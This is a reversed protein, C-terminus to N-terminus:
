THNIGYSIFIDVHFQLRQSTRLYSGSTSEEAPTCFVESTLRSKTDGGDPSRFEGFLFRRHGRGIVRSDTSSQLHGADLENVLVASPRAYSQPFRVGRFAILSVGLDIGALARAGRRNPTFGGRGRMAVTRMTSMLEDLAQASNAPTNQRLRDAKRSCGLRTKLPGPRRKPHPPASFGGWCAHLAFDSFLPQLLQNIKCPIGQLSPVGVAYAQLQRKCSPRARSPRNGLERTVM